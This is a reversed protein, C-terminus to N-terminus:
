LRQDAAVKLSDAGEVGVYVAHCVLDAGVPFVDTSEFLLERSSAAPLETNREM